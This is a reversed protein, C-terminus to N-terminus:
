EAVNSGYKDQEEEALLVLGGGSDVFAEIADLEADSLRPSDPGPVTHECKPVSPHAIVLVAVDSLASATLSGDVFPEVALSRERLAEAARAYSSDAAHSPQMERAVEPRITWSEAHSEDFLVRGIPPHSPM